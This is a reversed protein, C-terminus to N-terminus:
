ERCTVRRRAQDPDSTLERERQKMSRPLRHMRRRLKEETRPSASTPPSDKKGKM